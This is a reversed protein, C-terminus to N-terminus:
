NPSGILQIIVAGFAVASQFPIKKFEKEHKEM